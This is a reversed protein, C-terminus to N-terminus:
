EAQFGNTKHTGDCFPKDSSGGCRCLWNETGSYIPKGAADLITFNGKVTLSKNLGPKITLAGGETLVTIESDLTRSGPARFAIDKHSNDCFPKIKSAGCRCLAVRTDKLIFTEDSKIITVDGRVYLPGDESLQITNTVPVAENTGQKREYHLAGTPCHSIAEEIQEATANAPQIWPRQSRNFVASLRTICEEAHICRKLNYSVDIEETEYHHLKGLM